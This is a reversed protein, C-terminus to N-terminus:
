EGRLRKIEATAASAKAPVGNMRNVANQIRQPSPQDIGAAYENAIYDLDTGLEKVMLDLPRAQQPVTKPYSQMEQGANKLFGLGLVTKTRWEKDVILIPRNAALQSQSSIVELAQGVQVTKPALWDLYAQVEPSQGNPKPAAIGLPAQTGVFEAAVWGTAGDGDKVNRWNRGGAERDEGVIEVQNGDRLVKVRAATTAPEGRMNVGEAGAGTIVFREATPTPATEPAATPVPLDTPKPAATPPSQPVAAPPATTPVAVVPAPTPTPLRQMASMVANGLLGFVVVWFLVGAGVVMSITRRSLGRRKSPSM